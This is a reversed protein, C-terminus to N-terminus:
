NWLTCNFAHATESLIDPAITEIGYPVILLKMVTINVTFCILKLEM